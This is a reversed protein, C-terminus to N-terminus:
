GSIIKKILLGFGADMGGLLVAFVLTLIVVIILTGILNDRAPWTIKYIEARVESLFSLIKSM